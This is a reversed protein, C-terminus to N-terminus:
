NWRQNASASPPSGAFTAAIKPLRARAAECGFHFPQPKRRVEASSALM